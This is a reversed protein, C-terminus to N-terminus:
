WLPFTSTICVQLFPDHFLINIDKMSESLKSLILFSASSTM